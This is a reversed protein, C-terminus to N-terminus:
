NGILQLLQMEQEEDLKTIAGTRSVTIFNRFEAIDIPNVLFEIQEIRAYWPSKWYQYEWEVFSPRPKEVVIGFALIKGAYQYYKSKQEEAFNLLGINGSAKAEKVCSRIHDRSTKACMFFVTDGVKADKAVTWETWGKNQSELLIDINSKGAEFRESLDEIGVPSQFNTIFSSM